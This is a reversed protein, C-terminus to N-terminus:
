ALNIVDNSNFFMLRVIAKKKRSKYPYGTLIVRELIVKLPDANKVHGYAVLRKQNRKEQFIMVNAPPFINMCYMSALHLNNTSIEKEYKVKKCGKFIKSFILNNRFRRFGCQIEHVTKSKLKVNEEESFRQITMHMITMKREHKLLTSIILPKNKKLQHIPFDKIFLRIYMGKFVFGNKRHEEKAVKMSRVYNKFVFINDFRKSLNSYPNWECERFSKLAKYDRFKLYLDENTQYEVEDPFDLENEMRLELEYM